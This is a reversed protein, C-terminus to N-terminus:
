ARKRKLNLIEIERKRAETQKIILDNKVDSLAPRNTVSQWSQWTHACETSGITIRGGKMMDETITLKGVCTAATKPEEKTLGTEFVYEAPRIIRSYIRQKEGKIANLIAENVFGDNNEEGIIGDCFGLSKAENCDFWSGQGDKDMYKQIEDRSLGTKKAYANIITEGVTELVHITAKMEHKDGVAVTWPNHIMMMATPAMLVKNGAMAIISAASAAIAPIKVTINGKHELLDTYIRSAVMTDGGYSDIYVTIDGDCKELEAKFNKHGACDVGIESYWEASEDDVIDGTIYLDNSKTAANHVFNYFKM